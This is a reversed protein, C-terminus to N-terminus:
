RVRSAGPPLNQGVSVTSADGTYVSRSLILTNPKFEFSRKQDNDHAAMNDRSNQASLIATAAIVFAVLIPFRKM